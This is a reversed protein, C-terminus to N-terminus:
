PNEEDLRVWSRHFVRGRLHGNVRDLTSPSLSHLILELLPSAMGKKM